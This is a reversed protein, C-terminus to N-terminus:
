IKEFFISKLFNKLFRMQRYILTLFRDFNRIKSFNVKLDAVVKDFEKKKKEAIVGRAEDTPSAQRFYLQEQQVRLPAATSRGSEKCDAACKEGLDGQEFKLDAEQCELKMILVEREFKPAQTESIQFEAEDHDFISQFSTHISAYNTEKDDENLVQEAEEAVSASDQISEDQDANRLECALIPEEVIRPIKSQEPQDAADTGRQPQSFWRALWAVFMVVIAFYDILLDLDAPEANVKYPQGGRAPSPTYWWAQDATPDFFVM